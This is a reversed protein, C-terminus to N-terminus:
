VTFSDRTLHPSREFMSLGHSRFEIDNRQGPEVILSVSPWNRGCEPPQVGGFRNLDTCYDYILYKDHVLKLQSIQTQSLALNPPQGYSSQYLMAYCAHLDRTSSSDKVGCANNKGLGTYSAVFPQATWNTKVRGGQTAWTEGNWITSYIYMPQYDLYPVKLDTARHFVRIVKGDVLFMILAQNWLIGYEHYDASPDFWLYIRQERNGVGEAFVNTQLIYPQGTSNGLFEFDLECWNKTTSAMYYSTVTGASDGAVLKVKMSFQGFLYPVKSAFGSGTSNTLALQVVKSNNLFKVNTQGYLVYYTDSFITTLAAGTFFVAILRLLSTPLKITGLM